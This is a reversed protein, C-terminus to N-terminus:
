DGLVAMIVRDCDQTTMMGHLPLCLVRSAIDESVTCIASNHIKFTNITSLSPYFYRRPFIGLDNARKLAVLLTREDPFFIPFYAYNYEVDGSFQLIKFYDRLRSAYYEFNVRRKEIEIDVENLNLIGIAAHVESLKANTGGPLVEGDRTFGFNSLEILKQALADDNTIIAGGEVCNFVKTAHFSVVSATGFSLLSEQGIKVGFCHAADYVVPLHRGKAEKEIRETDCPIGYVHVPAIASVSEYLEDTASGLDIGFSDREIDLFLPTCGVNAISTASAMFTYPTTLIAGTLSLARYTLELGITANSVAVVNRVGLYSGLREEFELLLPGRNTLQRNKFILEIYPRLQDHSPFLPKTILLSM